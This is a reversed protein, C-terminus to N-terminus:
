MDDRIYGACEAEVATYLRRATPQRATFCETGARRIGGLMRRVFLLRKSSRTTQPNRSAASLGCAPYKTRLVDM